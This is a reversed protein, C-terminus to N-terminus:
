PVLNKDNLQKDYYKILGTLLARVKSIQLEIDKYNKIFQLNESLIMQTDLEALSGLAIDLFRLTEKDSHKVSGEAINSPISIAARRIQSVIGFVENNPYTETIGYINTALKISEKWVEMDKYYM